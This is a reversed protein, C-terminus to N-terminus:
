RANGEMYTDAHSIHLWKYRSESHVVQDLIESTQGEHIAQSEPLGQIMHNSMLQCKM